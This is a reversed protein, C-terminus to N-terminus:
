WPSDKMRVWYGIHNVLIHFFPGVLVIIVWVTWSIDFFIAAVLGAGVLFDLQDFPFWGEGPMRKVRRKFFSKILDGVIAGLGFLFGFWWPAQRLDFASLSELVPWRGVAWYQVLFLFGGMVTAVVVGRWTKHSGFLPQGGYMRGGDVPVALRTFRNKFLVPSMNALGAPLFFYLLQGIFIIVNM